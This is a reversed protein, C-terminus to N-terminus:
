EVLERLKRKSWIKFALELFKEQRQQITEKTFDEYNLLDQTILIKQEKRYVKDKKERFPKNLAESNHPKSLLTLNGLRHLYEKKGDWDLARPLIHEVTLKGWPLQVAKPSSSREQEIKYLVYRAVVQNEPEFIRFAEAFLKDENMAEQEALAHIAADVTKTKAIDGALRYYVLELKKADRKLVTSHRFTLIEIAKALRVFDASTLCEKARLLLPYCRTANLANLNRLVSNEVEDKDAKLFQAYYQAFQQLRDLFQKKVDHSSGIVSRYWKMLEKRPVPEKERDCANAWCYHLLFQKMKGDSLMKCIEDMTSACDEGKTSGPSEKEAKSCVYNKVLDAISLDMGRDNLTEFLLYVDGDDEPQVDLFTVGLVKDRLFDILGQTAKENKLEALREKLLTKARDLRKWSLFSPDKGRRADPGPRETFEKDDLILFEFREKDRKSLSLTPRPADELSGRQNIFDRQIEAAREKDTSAIIEVASRILLLLTALRQQGDIVEFLSNRHQGPAPKTKILLIGLFYPPDNKLIDNWLEVVEDETWAYPRQYFPVEYRKGRILEGLTIPSPKRITMVKRRVM